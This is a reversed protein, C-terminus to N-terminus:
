YVTFGVCDVYKDSPHINAIVSGNPSDLVQYAALPLIFCKGHLFDVQNQMATEHGVGSGKGTSVGYTKWFTPSFSQKLGAPAYQSIPVSEHPTQVCAEYTADIHGVCIKNYKDCIPNTLAVEPNGAKVPGQNPCFTFRCKAGCSDDSHGSGSVAPNGNVSLLTACALLITAAVKTNSNV